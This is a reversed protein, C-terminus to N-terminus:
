NRTARLDRERLIVYDKWSVGNILMRQEVSTPRAPLVPIAAAAMVVEVTARGRTATRTGSMSRPELDGVVHLMFPGSAVIMHLTTDRGFM